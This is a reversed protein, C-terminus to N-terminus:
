VRSLDSDSTKSIMLTAQGNKNAHYIKINVRGSPGKPPKIEIKIPKNQANDLIRMEIENVCYKAGKRNLMDFVRKHATIYEVTDGRITIGTKREEPYMKPVWVWEYFEHISDEEEEKKVLIEM